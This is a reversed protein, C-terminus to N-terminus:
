NLKAEFCLKKIRSSKRPINMQLSTDLLNKESLIQDIIRELQFQWFFATLSFDM